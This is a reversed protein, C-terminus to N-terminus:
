KITQFLEISHTVYIPFFVGFSPVEMVAMKTAFFVTVRRKVVNKGRRNRRTGGEGNCEITKPKSVSMADCRMAVAVAVFKPFHFM